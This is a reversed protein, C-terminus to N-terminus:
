GLRAFLVSRPGGGFSSRSAAGTPDLGLRAQGGARGFLSNNLQESSLSGLGRGRPGNMPNTADPRLDPSPSLHVSGGPSGPPLGLHTM